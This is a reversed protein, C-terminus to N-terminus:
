YNCELEDYSNKYINHCQTQTYLYENEKFSHTSEYMSLHVQFFLITIWKYVCYPWINGQSGSLM